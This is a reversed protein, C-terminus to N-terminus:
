DNHPCNKYSLNAAESSGLKKAIQFNNCADASNGLQLQAKGKLLYAQTLKPNIDLAMGFDEDAQVFRDIKMEVEGREMYYSAESHIKEILLDYYSLSSQYRAKKMELLALQHIVEPKEPYMENLLSMDASAVTLEDTQIASTARLLYYDSNYPNIKIAESIEKVANKYKFISHYIEAHIIFYEDNRNNLSLAKEISYLAPNFQGLHALIKAQFGYFQHKPIYKKEYKELEELAKEYMNRKILSLVTNKVVEQDSYWNKVWLTKWEQTKIMNSFASDSAIVFENTKDSQLLYKQLWFICNHTDNLFGYCESIKLSITNKRISDVKLYCLIANDYKKTKFYYNGFSQFYLYNSKYKLSISVYIKLADDFQRNETLSIAKLLQIDQHQSFIKINFLFLTILLGIIKM